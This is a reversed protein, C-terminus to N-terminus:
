PPPAENILHHTLGRPNFLSSHVYTLINVFPPVMTNQKPMSSAISKKIALAKDNRIDWDCGVLPKSQHPGPGYGKPFRSGADLDGLRISGM